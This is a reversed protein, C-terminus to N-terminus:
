GVADAEGANRGDRKSGGYRGLLAATVPRKADAFIRSAFFTRAPEANLEAALAAATSRDACPRVYVTDDAVVPRGDIPAVAHFRPTAYLGAIAVKHPALTYDGIGFVSFRPRDRYIRSARADLREAHRMLYAWARPADHALRAPDEVLARQPLLLRRRPVPAADHALDASKLLPYLVHDEVWVREGLGNVLGGDVPRLELVAACDHKIGSRWPDGQDTALARTAHFGDFDAVLEGDGLGIRRDPRADLRARLEAAAPGRRDVRLFLLGAAVRADFADAADIAALRADRVTAGSRWLDRLIRRAVSTKLLMAVAADRGAAATICARTIWESVDFNSRGTIADIGRRGATNARTPRNGSGLTALAANTVWPPNGLVLWPEPLRALRARWDTRFADAREITADPLARRAAAVHGADVDFGVLRASPWARAAAALLSGRGCTPELVTAPRVRWRRLARCVDDALADPTQFDGFERQRADATRNM